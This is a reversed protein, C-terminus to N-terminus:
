IAYIIYPRGSRVTKAAYKNLSVIITQLYVQLQVLKAIFLVRFRSIERTGQVFSLPFRFRTFMIIHHHRQRDLRIGDYALKVSRHHRGRPAHSVRFLHTPSLIFKQSNHARIMTPFPDLVVPGCSCHSPFNPYTAHIYYSLYCRMYTRPRGAFRTHCPCSSATMVLGDCTCVRACTYVPLTGRHRAFVKYKNIEKKKHSLLSLSLLRM